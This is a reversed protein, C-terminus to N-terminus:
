RSIEHIGQMLARAQGIQVQGPASARGLACFTMSSGFLEGLVRTAGGAPGMAMTLLPVQSIRSYRETVQMVRLADASDAAMVAFKCVGAGLREMRALLAELDGAEPTKRFDHHSVVPIAGAERILACMRSVAEDGFGIEVDVMDVGEVSAVAGILREYADPPLTAQGGQDKSRFTVLLLTGELHGALRACLKAMACEDRVEDCFDLRLEVCDAGARVADDAAELAADLDRPMIPVITKPMGEGVTIGKRAFPKM